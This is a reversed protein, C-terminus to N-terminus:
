HSGHEHVNSLFFFTNPRHIALALRRARVTCISRCQQRVGCVGRRASASLSGERSARGPLCRPRSWRVLRSFSGAPRGATATGTCSAHCNQWQCAACSSLSGGPGRSRCQMRLHAALSSMTRSVAVAVSAQSRAHGGLPVGCAPLLLVCREASLYVRLPTSTSSMCISADHTSTPVKKANQTAIQMALRVTVRIVQTCARVVHGALKNEQM